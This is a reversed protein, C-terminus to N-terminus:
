GEEDTARLLAWVFQETRAVADADVNAFVDEPHHWNPIWGDTTYGVFSLADLGANLAPMGDTYAGRQVAPRAGLEPRTQALRDARQILRGAYTKPLVIGESRLYVPGTGTGAINDVAIVGDLQSAHRRVFDASGNAGVEECGTAVIWVETGALREAKLREALALVVGVGSANDNAGATIPTLHAQVVLAFMAAVPAAAALAAVRLAESPAAVGAIFIACLAAMAAVCVTSLVRYATFAGRSRWILPTRHTDVHALLAIRRRPEGAAPVVAVVNRSPEAPLFWRLPNDYGASEALASALALGGLVAAALAGASANPTGGVLWFLAAALLMLGLGLGFPLYASTVSRFPEARAALGLAELQAQVYDHAAREQPTASGRPGLTVSLHEIHKLATDSMIM